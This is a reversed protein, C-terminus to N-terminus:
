KQDDKEKKVGQVHVNVASIAMDAMLEVEDRVSHQVNWAVEPIKAGYNVILFVDLVLGDDTEEVKIGKSISEKKRFTMSIANSLGGALAAVGDTRLVANAACVSIVDDSVRSLNEEM